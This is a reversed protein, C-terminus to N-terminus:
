LHLPLPRDCWSRGAEGAPELHQRGAPSCGRRETLVPMALVAWSRPTATPRCHSRKAPTVPCRAWWSRAQQTWTTGSRTFVYVAGVNNNDRPAGVIATNGDGSLATAFPGQAYSDDLTGSGLLHAQQSYQAHAVHSATAVCLPISRRFLHWSSAARKIWLSNMKSGERLTPRHQSELLPGLWKRGSRWQASSSQYQNNSTAGADGSLTIMQDPAVQRPAGGRVEANGASSATVDDIVSRRM